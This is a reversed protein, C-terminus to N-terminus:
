RVPGCIAMPTKEVPHVFLAKELLSAADPLAHGTM